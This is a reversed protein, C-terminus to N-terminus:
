GNGSDEQPDDLRALVSEEGVHIRQVFGRRRISYIHFADAYGLRRHGSYNTEIFVIDGERITGRHDIFRVFDGQRFAPAKWSYFSKKRM